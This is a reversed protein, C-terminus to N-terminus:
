TRCWRRCRVGVPHGATLPRDVSEDRGKGGHDDADGSQHGDGDRHGGVPLVADQAAQAGRRDARQDDHGRLHDHDEGHGAQAHEQEDGGPLQDVVHSELAVGEAHQASEDQAAQTEEPDSEDQRAGHGRRAGGLDDRHHQQVRHQDEGPSGPRAFQHGCGDLLDRGEHRQGVHDVQQAAQPDALGPSIVQQIDAHQGPHEQQPDDDRRLREAPFSHPQPQIQCTKLQGTLRAMGSKTRCSRNRTIVAIPLRHSVPSCLERRKQPTHHGNCIFASGAPTM